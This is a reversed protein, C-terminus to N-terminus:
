GYAHGFGIISLLEHGFSYGGVVPVSVTLKSDERKRGCFKRLETQM